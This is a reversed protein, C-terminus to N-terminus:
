DLNGAFLDDIERTIRKASVKGRAGVTQAFLSVRLEEILWGVDIVRRTVQSPTLADLLARYDAEVPAIEVLRARDRDPAGPLADLRRDIATVYRTLDTLRDAGTSTAFGPRVLRDLQARADAVSPALAPRALSDLRARVSAAAVVVEGADALVDGALTPLRRRADTRLLDFAAETRVPAPHDTAIRDAAASIADRLLAGLTLGEVAPIALRVRNPVRGELGRVGVPVSRLLLRRVGGAHIRTAVEPRSFVRLEVTEVRDLLAPYGEVVHGDVETRVVAPLDGVDWETIGTRELGGGRGVADAVAARVRGGVLDRLADLDKGLAVVDNGDHAAITVRLHPALSREDLDTPAVREGARATLIEALAEALPRDQTVRLEDVAHEAAEALPTLGRRLRKPLTRVLGDVLEARLGPVQWSFSTADVRNLVALPVHVTVGDLDHGPEYRYTVPLELDGATWTDPYREGDVALGDDTLDELTLRLRDPESARIQKWWRDFHGGSVVDSGLQRDYFRRLADHDFLDWRRVRHGLDRVSELFAENEALVRQRSPWDRDVLAHDIFLARAETADVRDYGVRRGTVIPLGYLTVREDTVARGARADWRPEGYSRRVLDGALPEAWAPDVTAAMRGGLRNTEVLEAAVVWPPPRRALASTPVLQFRANRAGRFERTERDRQGLHSLLGALVARHVQDADAPREVPRLGVRAAAQSLQRHLDIWERVRLHNLFEARCERRFQSSGLTSRREALHDWLAVLTLLDSGPVVFRAHAEDAAQRHDAPRERPDQLSLASAIVLVERLCGQRDAELVMRGFRPDVPLRALRRGVQTLRHGRGGGDISDTDQGRSALAGLEDLLAVGDRVARHDPPDLFPFSAVEGLDLDAMRLIVSALNTRLIEPETFEPRDAFDDEEYLRICVGPAVRGCRGARQDASAQSVKEIPLRQVKLRHSYRLIRATGADVVYRVGPVTLSTEAVNTALVVRRRHHQAFVRHQEASSLRAYLPLVDIDDHGRRALADATDRIEREGSLFVLVDGPGERVLEDVADCVAQVQDRDDDLVDDGEDAAVLGGYPRYRIEVPHSRGSVQVVPADGFHAAFRSTDITASTIIVKLDPRRPLLRELYGVLFDINLSREHAEDVIVTDYRRLLRDRGIEALLIGDTMVKVRTEPRIRDDFRVAYGVTAGVEEGLEEAVREAITRAAVRRPQTHGIWGDIGRGLELCLKPLQTSKGSGTEGAVVVVQHDRIADLLEPRRATIPLEPPYHLLEPGFPRGAIPSSPTEPPHAM